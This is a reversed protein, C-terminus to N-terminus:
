MLKGILLSISNHLDPHSGKLQKLLDGLHAKQTLEVIFTAASELELAKALLAAASLAVPAIGFPAPLQQVLSDVSTFLSAFAIHAASHILAPDSEAAQNHLVAYATTLGLACQVLGTYSSALPRKITVLASLASPTDVDMETAAENQAKKELDNNTPIFSLYSHPASALTSLIVHPLSQKETNAAAVSTSPGTLSILALADVIEFCTTLLSSRIAHAETSTYQAANQDRVIGHSLVLTTFREV